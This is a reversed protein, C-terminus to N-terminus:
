LNLKQRIMEGLDRSLKEASQRRLHSGDYTEYGNQNVELWVGGAQEFQAVFEAQNFGSHQDELDVMKQLTPPRFAFVKIGAAHWSKVKRLLDALIREDQPNGQFLRVYNDIKQDPRIKTQDSAVWGDPHFDQLLLSRRPDDLIEDWIDDFSLKDTFRLAPSFWRDLVRQEPSIKAYELFFNEKMASHTLSRPTIGLLIIKQGTRDLVNEIADLYKYSFGCANFAYNRIRWDKAGLSEGLAAPSVGLGTRSDGAAVVDACNKWELKMTWFVSPYLGTMDKPRFSGWLLILGVALILTFFLREQRLRQWATLRPQAVKISKVTKVDINM